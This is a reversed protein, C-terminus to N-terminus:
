LKIGLALLANYLRQAHFEHGADNPHTGDSSVFIDACAIARHRNTLNVTM